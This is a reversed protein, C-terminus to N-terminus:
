FSWIIKKQQSATLSSRGIYYVLPDHKYEILYIGSNTASCGWEKLFKSKLAKDLYDTCTALKDFPKVPAIRDKYLEKIHLSHLSKLDSELKDPKNVGKTKASCGSCYSKLIMRKQIQSIGSYGESLRLIGLPLWKTRVLGGIIAERQELTLEYEKKYWNVRNM